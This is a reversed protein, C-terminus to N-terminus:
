RSRPVVAVDTLIKKVRHSGGIQTDRSTSTPNPAGCGNARVHTRIEGEHCVLRRRSSAYLLNLVTNLLNRIFFEPSATVGNLTRKHATRPRELTLCSLCNAHRRDDDPEGVPSETGFYCSAARTHRPTPRASDSRAASSRSQRKTASDWMHQFLDPFDSKLDPYIVPRDSLRRRQKQCKTRYRRNIPM